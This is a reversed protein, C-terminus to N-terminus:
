FEVRDGFRWSIAKAIRTYESREISQDGRHVIGSTGRYVEHNFRGMTEKKAGFQAFGAEKARAQNREHLAPM